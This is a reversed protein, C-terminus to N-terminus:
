KVSFTYIGREEFIPADTMKVVDYKEYLKARFNVAQKITEFHKSITKM